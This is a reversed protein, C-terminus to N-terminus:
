PESPLGGVAASESAAPLESWVERLKVLYASLLFGAAILSTPHEVGAPVTGEPALVHFAQSVILLVVGLMLLAFVARSRMLEGLFLAIMVLGVIGYGILILDDLNSSLPVIGGVGEELGDAVRERIRLYGDLAFWGLGAGSLIWFFSGPADVRQTAQPLRWFRTYILYGAVAVALLEAAKLTEMPGFEGFAASIDETLVGAIAAVILAVVNVALIAAVVSRHPRLREVSDSVWATLHHPRLSHWRSVVRPAMGPGSCALWCTLVALHQRRYLKFPIKRLGQDMMVALLPRNKRLPEAALYAVAGVIPVAAFLAVTLTHTKRAGRLQEGSGRGILATAESRLRFFATWGFRAINEFPGFLVLTIAIHAGLHGLAAVAEPTELGSLAKDAEEQDLHGEDVLRQVATRAWDRTQGDRDRGRRFARRLAAVIVPPWLFRLGRVLISGVKPILRM